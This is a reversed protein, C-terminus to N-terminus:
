SFVSSEPNKFAFGGDKKPDVRVTGLDFDVDASMASIVGRECLLAISFTISVLPQDVNLGQSYRAVPAGSASTEEVLDNEAYAM